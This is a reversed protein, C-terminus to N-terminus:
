ADGACGLQWKIKLFSERFVLSTQFEHDWHKVQWTRPHWGLGYSSAKQGSFDVLLTSILTARSHLTLKGASGSGSQV